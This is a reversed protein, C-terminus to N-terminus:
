RFGQFPDVVSHLGHISCTFAFRFGGGEGAEFPEPALDRGCEPCTRYHENGSGDGFRVELDDPLEIGDDDDM